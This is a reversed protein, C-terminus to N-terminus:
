LHFELDLKFLQVGLFLLVSCPVGHFDAPVFWGFCVAAHCAWLEGQWVSCDTCVAGSM